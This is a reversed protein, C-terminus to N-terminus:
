PMLDIRLLESHVFRYQYLTLWDGSEKAKTINEISDFTGQIHKIDKVPVAECWATQKLFELLPIMMSVSRTTWAWTEFHVLHELVGIFVQIDAYCFQEVISQTFKLKKLWFFYKYKTECILSKRPNFFVRVRLSPQIHNTNIWYKDVSVM